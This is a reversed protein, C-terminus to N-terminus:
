VGDQKEQTDTLRTHDVTEASVTAKRTMVEPIADVPYTLRDSSPQQIFHYGSQICGHIGKGKYSRPPGTRAIQSQVRIAKHRPRGPSTFSETRAAKNERVAV